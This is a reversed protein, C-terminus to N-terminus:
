YVDGQGVQEADLGVMGVRRTDPTGYQEGFYAFLAGVGESTAGDNVASGAIVFVHSYNLGVLYKFRIGVVIFAGGDRSFEISGGSVDSSLDDLLPEIIRIDDPELRSLPPKAAVIQALRNSM